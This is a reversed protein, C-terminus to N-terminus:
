VRDLRQCETRTKTHSARGGGRWGKMEVVEGPAKNGAM